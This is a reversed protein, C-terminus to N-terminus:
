LLSSLLKQSLLLQSSSIEKKKKKGISKITSISSYISIYNFAFSIFIGKSFYVKQKM